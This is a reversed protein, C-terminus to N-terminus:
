HGLSQLAQKLRQVALDGDKEEIAKLAFTALEKADQLAAKPYRKRSSGAATGFISSMFTPPPAPAEDEDSSEEDPQPSPMHMNLPVPPPLTSPACPPPLFAASDSPYPPPPRVINKTSGDMDVETGEDAKESEGNNDGHNNNGGDGYNDGDNDDSGVIDEGYGGAVVERGEKLAKLIETAKWKAYFSKKQEEVAEETNMEEETRQFQKLVDLFSAAAYFTRATGKNSGGARDERDAKDFISMAWDRCIGYKEDRTFNGMKARSEELISLMDGLCAKAAPTTALPIGSQVAHQRCHYAVILTAPTQHTSKSLEEARRVYQTVKKLEPPIKMASMKSALLTTGTPLYTPLCAYTHHIIKYQPFEIEFKL